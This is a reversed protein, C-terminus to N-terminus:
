HNGGFSQFNYGTQTVGQQPPVGYGTQPVGQQPPVGYGTQQVGQQPPVGYGTQQVGQQPPVGYGTQQVGQQPPVGYGTQPVGQPAPVGYGAQQVGMGQQPMGPPLMHVQGQTQASLSGVFTEWFPQDVSKEWEVRVMTRELGPMDDKVRSLVLTFQQNPTREIIRYSDGLRSTRAMFGKGQLVVQVQNKVYDLTGTVVVDKHPNGSHTLSNSDSGCGLATLVLMGGCVLGMGRVM